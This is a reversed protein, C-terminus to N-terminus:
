DIPQGDLYQHLLIRAKEWDRQVTRESVSRMRAIEAVSFGCFFKLDVCEGLWPDVRTLEELADNMKASDLDEEKAIPLETSL